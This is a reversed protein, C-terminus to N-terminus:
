FRLAVNALGSVVDVMRRYNLRDPTDTKRHYHEYRFFSTDTIMVAPYGFAWYSRHDSYDIGQLSRPANISYVETNGGIMLSKVQRVVRFNSLNGVVAIFNGVTPYILQLGPLPYKQSNPEDSFYGIMELSMMLKIKVGEEKMKQAHKFSGMTELGFTPPEELTYAVFDIRERIASEKAKLIRTLELLGAVGSANDDAGPQDECVDYHAGIVMREKSDKPGLSVILNKYTKGLVVYAQEEVKFGQDAWVSAIYDAAKNLSDLNKENRAPTIAALKEVHARLNDSFDTTAMHGNPSAGFKFVPNKAFLIALIVIAV